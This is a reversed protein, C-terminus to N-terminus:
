VIGLEGYKLNRKVMDDMRRICIQVSGGEGNVVKKM